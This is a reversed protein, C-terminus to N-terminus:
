YHEEIELCLMMMQKKVKQILPTILDVLLYDLELNHVLDTAM